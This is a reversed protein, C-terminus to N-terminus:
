EYEKEKIFKKYEKVWEKFFEMSLAAPQRLTKGAQVTRCSNAQQFPQM